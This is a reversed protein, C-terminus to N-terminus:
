KLEINYIINVNKAITFSIKTAFNATQVNNFEKSNRHKIENQNQHM